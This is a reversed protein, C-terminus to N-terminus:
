PAPRSWTDPWTPVGGELTGDVFLYLAWRRSRPNVELTLAAIGMPELEDGLAVHGRVVRPGVVEFIEDAVLGVVEVHVGAVGLAQAEFGTAVGVDARIRGRDAQGHADEVILGFARQELEITTEHDCGRSADFLSRLVQISGSSKAAISQAAKLVSEMLSETAVVQNGNAVDELLDGIRNAYQDMPLFINNHTLM